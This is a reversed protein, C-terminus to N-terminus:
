DYKLALNNNQLTLKTLFETYLKHNKTKNIKALRDYVYSQAENNALKDLLCELKTNHVKDDDTIKYIAEIALLLVPFKDRISINQKISKLSNNYAEKYECLFYNTTALNFYNHSKVLAMKYRYRKISYGINYVMNLLEFIYYLILYTILIIALLTIFSLDIRYEGILLIVHGSYNNLLLAVIIALVFLLIFNLILKM